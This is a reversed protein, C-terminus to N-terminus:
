NAFFALLEAVTEDPAEEPLFHGCPVPKGSLDTAWTRWMDLMTSKHSMGRDGWLVLVPCGIKRGAERDTEDHEVDIYAGARYDACSARITEPDSFCRLYEAMADTTFADMSGAWSSLSHRLYFEPDNGILREPFGEPQSLFFWHYAELAVTRNLIAFRDGTTIIDLLALREVQDPHDFALRYAVRAGRDHAALNFREFGLAAMVAVQDRAMVRKSYGTRDEGAPPKGSDGYGRLDAAVVTFREALRPAIKHWMVHSQPYGHLLLLPPGSGGIRANISTGPVEFQRQEFGEFM